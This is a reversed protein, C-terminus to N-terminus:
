ALVSLLHGPSWVKGVLLSLWYLTQSALSYWWCFSKRRCSVEESYESSSGIESEAMQLDGVYTCITLYLAKSQKINSSKV